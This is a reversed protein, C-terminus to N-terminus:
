MRHANIQPRIPKHTSHKASQLEHRREAESPANWGGRHLKRVSQRYLATGNRCDVAAVLDTPSKYEGQRNRVPLKARKKARRHAPFLVYRNFTVTAAHTLSLPNINGSMGASATITPCLNDAIEAGGQQTAMCVIAPVQATGSPAGKITPSVEEQYGITQAAPSAGQCFGSVVM